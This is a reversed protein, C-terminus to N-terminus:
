VYPTTPLTLHTYSVPAIIDAQEATKLVEFTNNEPNILSGNAGVEVSITKFQGDDRVLEATYTINETLKSDFDVKWELKKGVPLTDANHGPTVVNQERLTQTKLIEYETKAGDKFEVGSPLAFKVTVWQSPDKTYNAVFTIDEHVAVTRPDVTLGNM